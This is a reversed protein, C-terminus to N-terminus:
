GDAWSAAILDILCMRGTRIQADAISWPCVTVQFGFGMTSLLPPLGPTIVIAGSSFSNHMTAPLTLSDVPLEGLKILTVLGPPTEELATENVIVAGGGGGGGGGGTTTFLGAGVSVASDGGLTFAPAGANESNM